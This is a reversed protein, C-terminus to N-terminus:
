TSVTFRDNRLIHWAFWTSAGLIVINGVQSLLVESSVIEALILLTGFGYVLAPWRLSRDITALSIALAAVGGFFAIGGLMVVGLVQGSQFTDLLDTAAVADAGDSVYRGITMEAVFVAAFSAVGVLVLVRAAYGLRPKGEAALGTLALIGPVLVLIGVFLLLHAAYWRSAHEVIIAAQEEADADEAPHMIDGVSMLLPGIVLSAAAVIRQYGSISTSIL